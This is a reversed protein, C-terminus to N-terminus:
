VCLCHKTKLANGVQDANRTIETAATGLAITEDLTNNAEKMASSSRTLFDIIDENSVAQSNGIANIKSAIGDLADDAEINFAKMASVLGDTAKNIDVNPSISAFISSTKAMTEADKINYGLRSWEAAAQIVAETTVGLQKAIDNASYYFQNLEDGTATTTKKLDVLATDLDKITTLGTRVTQVLRLIVFSASFYTTLKQMQAKFKDIFNQTAVGAADADRKTQLWESRLHTLKQNDATAIQSKIEQIKTGFQKMADSNKSTWANIEATLNDRADNLKINSLKSSLDGNLSTLEQKTDFIRQQLRKFTDDDLKSTSMEGSLQKYTNKLEQLKIQINEVDGGMSKFSNTQLAAKDLQKSISILDRYAKTTQNINSSGNNVKGQGLNISIKSLDEIQKKISNLKSEVNSTNIQLEIPKLTKSLNEISAQLTSNSDEKLEASLSIKYEDAM